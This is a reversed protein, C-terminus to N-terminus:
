SNKTSGPGYSNVMREGVAWGVREGVAWGVREGVAWGVREGVHASRM